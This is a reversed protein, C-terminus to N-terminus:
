KGYGYRAVYQGYSIGKKSAKINIDTIETNTKTHPVTSKDRTHMNMKKKCDASCYKQNNNAQEYYGGCYKCIM